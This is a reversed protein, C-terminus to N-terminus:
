NGKIANLARLEYIHYEDGWRSICGHYDTPGRRVVYWVCGGSWFFLGHQYGEYGVISFGNKEWVTPAALKIDAVHRDGFALWPLSVLFAFAFFGAVALCVFKVFDIIDDM